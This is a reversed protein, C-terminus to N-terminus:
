EVKVLKGSQSLGDSLLTYVYTGRSLRGLSIGANANINKQMVVRGQLDHITLVAPAAQGAFDIFLEDRVPNPYLNVGPDESEAV